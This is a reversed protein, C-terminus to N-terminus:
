DGKFVQHLLAQFLVESQEVNIKAKLANILKIKNEFLHQLDLSPAYIELRDLVGTNMHTFGDEGGTKLRGLRKSFFKMLYVFFLPLLDTNRLSLKILNTSLLSRGHKTEVVCMKGVTGARSIIIDGNNVEYQNLEDFKEESVYLYPIDIFEYNQINDMNWVPVGQDSFEEKKLASGFPGCKVGKDYFQNLTTREWGKENKVPDGFMDIFIAQALEDYKKLLERDKRRLTDAKDLIDAIRQQVPIPPLPIALDTIHNIKIGKVTAGSALSQLHQENAKFFYFLFKPFLEKNCTIAKIDQNIAVDVTNIAVKGVAMRTAILLTDAPIIRTASNKVGEITILDQTSTIHDEKFDKVSVWPIDGNWYAEVDKSPTGGGLLQIYDGLRVKEWM